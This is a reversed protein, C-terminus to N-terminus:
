TRPLYTAALKHAIADLAELAIPGITPRDSALPPSFGHGLGDFVTLSFGPRGELARALAQAESLPTQADLEGHFIQVPLALRPLRSLNSECAFHDRVWASTALQEARFAAWDRELGAALEAYSVAGDGDSDLARADMRYRPAEKLERATFRGDRDTDVAGIAWTAVREVLQYRLVHELSRALPSLCALGAINGDAEAVLSAIVTGESHGILVVRDPRALNLSRLVGLARKADSVLDALRTRALVRQDVRGASVGRKDYRLVAFGESALRWALDRFPREVQGTATLEPGITQDMDTAGSGHVLLAACGIPGTRPRVLRAALSLGDHTRVTLPLEVADALVVVPFSLLILARVLVSM